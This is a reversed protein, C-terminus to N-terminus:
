ISLTKVTNKYPTKYGKINDMPYQKINEIKELFEVVDYNTTNTKQMLHLTTKEDFDTKNFIFVEDNFEAYNKGKLYAGLLRNYFEVNEDIKKEFSLFGSATKSFSVSKSPSDNSKVLVSFEEKLRKLEEYEFYQKTIDVIANARQIIEATDMMFLKNDSVILFDYWIPVEIGNFDFYIEVNAVEKQFGTIYFKMNTAKLKAFHKQETKFPMKHIRKLSKNKNHAFLFDIAEIKEFLLECFFKEPILFPPKEGNFQRVFVLMEEEIPQLKASKILSKTSIAVGLRDINSQYRISIAEKICDFRLRLNSQM